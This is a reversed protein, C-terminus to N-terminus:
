AAQDPYPLDSNKPGDIVHALIIDFVHDVARHLAEDTHAKADWDIKVHKVPM